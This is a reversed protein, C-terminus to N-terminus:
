PLSQNRSGYASSQFSSCSFPWPFIVIAFVPLKIIEKRVPKNM